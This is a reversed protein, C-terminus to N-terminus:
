RIVGVIPFDALLGPDHPADAMVATLDRGALHEEQHLSEQWLPSSSVDYVKGEYAVYAPAGNLGNCAGLDSASFIKLNLGKEPYDGIHIM